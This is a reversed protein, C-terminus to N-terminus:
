TIVGDENRSKFYNLLDGYVSENVNVIKIIGNSDIEICNEFDMNKIIEYRKDYKRSKMDGHWDHIIEGEIYSVHSRNAYAQIASKWKNYKTTDKSYKYAPITDSNLIDFITCIFLSDGGGLIAYPYLGGAEKWMSRQAAWACGPPGAHTAHKQPGGSFM